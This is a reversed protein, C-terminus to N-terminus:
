GFAPIVKSAFLELHPELWRPPLGPPLFFSLFDTYPLDSLADRILKVCTEPEAVQLLASQKLESRDRVEPGMRDDGAERFWRSYLNHQYIVHDAAENWTKDPDNSPLIPGSIMALRMRDLPRGLKGLESVYTEYLSRDPNGVLGDAYKAARRMAPRTFGGVWLRPRPRQIPEPTVRVNNLAFYRGKFTLREGEWLRRIIELSEDTRGGREKVPINFADFEERKYGAAVGLEFRGGSIVDVTAGDEAIRIPNHFPMLIVATSIRIRKTRAAIAAAIPMLAPSYGDDIFHHESLWVYDFGRNEAWAIQDLIEGYLREFPQRWRVPNRFDYWLGFHIKRQEKGSM